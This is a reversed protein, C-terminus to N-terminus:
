SVKMARSTREKTNPTATQPQRKPRGGKRGNARAAVAKAQSTASGGLRGLQAMWHRTGFVHNLLGPLYHDVDLLPWRLGTGGGVLQIKSLQSATAQHLGQLQVRPISVRVGDDLYLSVLDTNKEYEVKTARRDSAAFRRGREMALDIQREVPAVRHVKNPM